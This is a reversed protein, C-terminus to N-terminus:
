DLLRDLEFFDLIKKYQEREKEEMQKREAKTYQPKHNIWSYHYIYHLRKKLKESNCGLERSLEETYRKCYKLSEGGVCILVKPNNLRIENVLHSLCKEVLKNSINKRKKGKCDEKKVVGGCKVLNTIYADELGVFARMENFHKDGKSNVKPDLWCTERECAGIGGATSPSECIFMVPYKDATHENEFYYKRVNRDPCNLYYANKDKQCKCEKILNELDSFAIDSM